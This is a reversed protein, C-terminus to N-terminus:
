FQLTKSYDPIVFKDNNADKNTFVAYDKLSLDKANDYLNMDVYKKYLDTLDGSYNGMKQAFKKIEEKSAGAGYAKTKADTGSPRIEIFKDDFELYTGDGVFKVDTLNDFDLDKFTDSLIERIQELTMKGAKKAVAMTLYFVDNKTRQAEGAVKAQKLKEIDPESENYYSIDERIDFKSIIENNKFVNDLYESMSSGQKKLYAALASAVIIAETASKERMAIAARGSLSKILEESGIIMGGSEEGGFILKPNVGLNINNGLVDTVVVEKDPNDMIQKEVKKMVNAIEKFGVPVNVVKINNKKAWEDWSRASATTKIMFRPHNEFLGENKLQQMWFDMIMLFSQNATFVTLIRGKDLAVYDIGLSKLYQIKDDSEIQCVTLRDHDPDTILVATGIPCNKLNEDYHLSKIVPFYPKGDKDKSLVTADVSYDYFTKNGKPDTDYKGISHFFPDEEKNMWVYKDEIGLEKLIRSLTGYASGGVNEIVIKDDSNKILNLNADKAVGDLLYQKYLEVGDNLAKMEAQSILPNDNAAIKIDYYGNKEVEDFIYKIKDVFLMSEEPLYQSGQSNLDKTANKVSIGHSSTIYEGGLLDLKFALFSAMWIPITKRDVPVLTKIGHAAQIRAILELFEQSNYRVECGALKIIENDPYLEKAVLAKAETALMIGILNIPFRTDHPYLINQPGRIGATSVEAEKAYGKFWDKLNLGDPNTQENYPELNEKTLRFTFENKNGLDVLKNKKIYDPTKSDVSEFLSKELESHPQKNIM